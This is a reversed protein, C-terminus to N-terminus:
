LSQEGHARAVRRSLTGHVVFVVLAAVFLLVSLASAKGFDFLSFGTRYINIGFTLTANAPGGGTMIMITDFSNISSVVELVLAIAILGRLSPLTIHRFTQYWRAGDLAAAEYQDQGIGQLGALLLLMVFPFGQWSYTLMVAWLAFTPDGLWDTALAGLGVARLTQDVVGIDGQLMWRWLNAAVVSPLTWPIIVLVRLWVTGRVRANFLLAGVFGLVFRIVVTGAIWGLTRLAIPLTDPDAAVAAFIKLGAFVPTLLPLQVTSFSFVVTQVLPYVMMALILVMAPLVLVYAPGWKQLAIRRRRSRAASVSGGRPRDLSALTM